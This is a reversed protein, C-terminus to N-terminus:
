GRVKEVEENRDQDSKTQQKLPELSLSDRSPHKVRVTPSPLGLRTAEQPQYIVRLRVTDRLFDLEGIEVREINLGLREELDRILEKQREPRILEIKEYELSTQQEAKFLTFSQALAVVGLLAANILLLELYAFNAAANITSSAIVVFLFTIDKASTDEARYRLISFIAFLGFALGESFGSSKLGTVVVFIAVGFVMLSFSLDRNRRIPSYFFRTLVFSFALALVFRIWFDAALNTLAFAKILDM